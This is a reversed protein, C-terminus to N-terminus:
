LMGVATGISSSESRAKEITDSWTQRLDMLMTEIEAAIVDNKSVNAQTLRHLIYEYLSFIQRSLDFDFNLSNALEDIIEQAKILAVHVDAPRHDQLAQRALRIQRIAGDYLLIVLEGPSATLIRQERYHNYGNMLNM